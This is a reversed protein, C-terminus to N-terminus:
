HSRRSSFALSFILWVALFVVSQFCTPKQGNKGCACLLIPLPALLVFLKKM